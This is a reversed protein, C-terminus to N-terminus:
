WGAMVSGLHLGIWLRHMGYGLVGGVIAGAVAVGSGSVNWGRWQPLHMGVLACVSVLVLTVLYKSLRAGALWLLAGFLAGSITVIMAMHLAEPPLQPLLPQLEQILMVSERRGRTRRSEGSCARHAACDRMPRADDKEQSSEAAAAAFE